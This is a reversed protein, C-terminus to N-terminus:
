CWVILWLEKCFREGRLGKGSIAIKPKELEAAFLSIIDFINVFPSVITPGLLFCQSFLLFQEYRAIEGKGVINEFATQKQHDFHTKISYLILGKSCLGSKWRDQSFFNKLVNHSLSFISTVLMNEKKRCHKRGQNMGPALSGLMASWNIAYLFHSCPTSTPDGNQGIVKPLHHDLWQSLIWNEKM